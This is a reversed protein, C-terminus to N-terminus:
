IRGHCNKSFESVQGFINPVLLKNKQALLILINAMDLSYIEYMGGKTKTKEVSTREGGWQYHNQAMNEILQNAEDYPKGDTCWRRRCRYLTKHQVLTWQLVHPHDVLKRIQSTPVNADYRQLTGM